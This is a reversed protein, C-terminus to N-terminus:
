PVMSPVSTATDQARFYLTNQGGIIFPLLYAKEDPTLAHLVERSRTELRHRRFRRRAM